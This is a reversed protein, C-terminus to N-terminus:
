SSPLVHFSIRFLVVDEGVDSDDDEGFALAGQDQIQHFFGDVTSGSLGVRPSKFRQSNVILHCDSNTGIRRRLM